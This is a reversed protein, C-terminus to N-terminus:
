PHPYIANIEPTEPLYLVYVERGPQLHPGPDNLTSVLGEFEGRPCSFRYAIKWPNRGNVRVAYNQEVSVVRGRVAEGIQLVLVRKSFIQYRWVLLAAGGALAVVGSVLFPFGVFATILTVTLGAGICSFILGLLAFVFGVIGMGDTLM